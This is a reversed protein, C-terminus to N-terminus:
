PPGDGRPRPFGWDSLTLPDAPPDMGAHAPFGFERLAATQEQQTWGRTPPSVLAGPDFHDYVAPGDGRPRPFRERKDGDSNIAPDMGAHAPFGPSLDEPLRCYRTWGRTPPSVM